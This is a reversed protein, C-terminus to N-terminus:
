QNLVRLFTDKLNGVMIAETFSAEYKRRSDTGMAQRLKPDDILQIVREAIQEPSKPEVLFGNEGHIVSESIAGQDTTIIPLSAAMAEIIVWPHGEPERPPFIFLDSAGLMEMKNDSMSSPHFRIPLENESVLNLCYDMLDASGWTGMVDMTWTGPRECEVLHMADVVDRFGKSELMNGVSILRLRDEVDEKRIVNFDAGNPVVHIQNPEFYDDFLHVLNNGLVIVGDAKSCTRRTYWRIPAGAQQQWNKFNSGRLQILIKNKYLSSLWIFLSDKLFGTTTQSIPILVLNPRHTRILSVLRAYIRLNMFVKRLSGKGMTQISLNLGNDLHILEFDEKLKSNLIIQTAIAPGFYPPPLKGIILVLPRDNETNKSYTSGENM